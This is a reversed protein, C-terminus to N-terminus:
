VSLLVYFNFLGHSDIPQYGGVHVRKRPVRLGLQIVRRQVRRLSTAPASATYIVFRAGEYMRTFLTCPAHEKRAADAHEIAGLDPLSRDYAEDASCM